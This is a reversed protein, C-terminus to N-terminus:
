IDMYYIIDRVQMGVHWMSRCIIEWGINSVKKLMALVPETPRVTPGLPACKKLLNDFVDIFFHHCCCKLMEHMKITNM